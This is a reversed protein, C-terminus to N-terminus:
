KETFTKHWELFLKLDKLKMEETRFITVVQRYFYIMIMIILIILYLVETSFRSVLENVISFLIPISFLMFPTNLFNFKKLEIENNVIDIIQKNDFDIKQKNISEFFLLARAGRWYLSNNKLFSKMEVGYIKTLSNNIRRIMILAWAMVLIYYGLSVYLKYKEPPFFVLFLFLISNIGIFIRFSYKFGAKEFVAEPTSKRFATLLEIYENKVNMDM